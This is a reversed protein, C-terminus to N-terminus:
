RKKFRIPPNAVPLGTPLTYSVLTPAHGTCTSTSDSCIGTMKYSQCTETTAATSATVLKNSGGYNLVSGAISLSSLYMTGTCATGSFYVSTFTSSGYISIYNDLAITGTITDLIAMNGDSLFVIPSGFSTTVHTLGLDNGLSDALYIGGGDGKDGKDGKLLSLDINFPASTSTGALNIFNGASFGNPNLERFKLEKTFKNTGSKIALNISSPTSGEEYFYNFAFVGRSDTKVAYPSLPNTVPIKTFPDIPSIEAGAAATNDNSYVVGYIRTLAARTPTPLNIEVSETQSTIETTQSVKSLYGTSTTADIFIANVKLNRSGTKLEVENDGEVLPIKLSGDDVSLGIFAPAASTLQLESLGVSINIKRKKSSQNSCAFLTLIAVLVISKM